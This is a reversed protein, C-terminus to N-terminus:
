GVGHPTTEVHPEALVFVGHIAPMHSAEVRGLQISLMWSLGCLSQWMLSHLGNEANLAIIASYGHRHRIKGGTQACGLSVCSFVM